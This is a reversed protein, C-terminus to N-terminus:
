DSLFRERLAPTTVLCLDRRGWRYRRKAVWRYALDRLPAPVLGFVALLPWPWSLRRSVRLAAGSRQHVKGTAPEVLLMTQYGQEATPVPYGVADLLRRAAASQLACFRFRARADRKIVFQVAGHCLNCEGDFLLVPRQDSM